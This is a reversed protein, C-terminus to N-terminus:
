KTVLTCELLVTRKKVTDPPPDADPVPTRGVGPPRCGPPPDAWGWPPTQMRPPNAPGVGGGTFLIVCLHLFM